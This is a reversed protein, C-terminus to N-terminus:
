ENVIVPKFTIDFDGVAVEFTQGPRATVRTVNLGRTRGDAASSQIAMTIRLSNPNIVDPRITCSRGQGLDLCTECHNTLTVDGLNRAISSAAVPSNTTGVSAPQNTCQRPAPQNTTQVHAPAPRQAVNAPASTKFCSFPLLGWVSILAVVGIQSPGM